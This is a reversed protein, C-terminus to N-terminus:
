AGVKATFHLEAGGAPANAAWLRGGHAEIISRCIGLGLGLGHKKTTVFPQFIRELQDSPIGGGRDCVVCEVARGEDISRTAISLRRESMPSDSMAECANVVLNLVVQQLQVADALVLVAHPSLNMAVSVNRTILDSHALTLVDRIVQNLDTPQRQIEGRSLMSRLRQIVEAARVDDRIIDRLMEMVDAPIGEERELIQLAAEANGLISTLPQTLEHAFAGSLEGLVAARSLHALQQRQERAQVAAQKSATIETRTIVAGGEPRRLPEISMEYWLTGEPATRSFELHRRTSLGALVDCIYRLLDGAMADGAQVAAECAELYHDGVRAQDFPRSATHEVFRSWSHNAEIIVGAHDLVVIQDHISSLVASHLSEVRHREFQARRLSSLDFLFTAGEGSSDAFSEGAVMAPIRRGDRLVIERETPASDEAVLRSGQGHNVQSGDRAAMLRTMLIRGSRLDTRDYGSLALFSENADIIRGDPQWVVIPMISRGFLTRFRADSAQRAHELLEREELAAALLLLAGSALGLILLLGVAGDAQSGPPFRGTEDLLGRLVLVGALLMAICTGAVGFRVTAWILSLLLAYLLAWRAANTTWPVMFLATALTFLGVFLVGAEMARAFQITHDSGRLWVAAHLVLPVVTLIAFSNSLTYVLLMPWFPREVHLAPLAAALLGSSVIPAIVGALVSFAVATRLREIRRREGLVPSLMLAGVLAMGCGALYYVIGLGTSFGTLSREALLHAPLLLVLYIWWDRRRVLLLTALLFANSAALGSGSASPFLASGLRAMLAYGAGIGAVILLKRTTRTASTATLTRALPSRTDTPRSDNM